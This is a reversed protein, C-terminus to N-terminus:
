ISELIDLPTKKLHKALMWVAALCSDKTQKPFGRFYGFNLCINQLRKNGEQDVITLSTLFYQYRKGTMDEVPKSFEKLDNEECFKILAEPTVREIAKHICTCWGAGHKQTLELIDEHTLRETM